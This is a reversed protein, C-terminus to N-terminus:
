HSKKKPPIKFGRKRAISFSIAVAQNEKVGEHRLKRIKRSIFNKAKVSILSPHVHRVSKHHKKSARFLKGALQAQKAL